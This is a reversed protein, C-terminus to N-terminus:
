SGPVGRDLSCRSKRFPLCRGLEVGEVPKGDCPFLEFGWVRGGRVEVVEIVSVVSGDRATVALWDKKRARVSKM